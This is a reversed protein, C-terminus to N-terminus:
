TRMKKKCCLPFHFKKQVWMEMLFTLFNSLQLHCHIQLFDPSLSIFKIKLIHLYLVQILSIYTYIWENIDDAQDRNANSNAIEIKCKIFYQWVWSRM